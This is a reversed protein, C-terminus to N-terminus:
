SESASIELSMKDLAHGLRQQMEAHVVVLTRTLAVNRAYAGGTLQGLVVDVVCVGLTLDKIEDTHSDRM